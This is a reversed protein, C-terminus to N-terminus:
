PAASPGYHLLMGNESGVWIDNASEGWISLLNHETVGTVPVWDGGTYHAMYGNTGVIWANSTSSAWVGNWTELYTLGFPESVTWDGWDTPAYGYIELAAGGVWFRGASAGGVIYGVESFNRSWAAGDWHYFGDDGVAWVNTTGSGWVARLTDSAGTDNSAGGYEWSTATKRRANGVGIYEGVVWLESGAGWICLITGTTPSEEYGWESGDYHLLIGDGGAWIDNASSGWLAYLPANAWGILSFGQGDWHSFGGNTDVAWVDNASSGWLATIDYNMAQGQIETWGITTGCQNPTGGGGCTAPTTCSGCSLTQGCGDDPTGCTAHLETCTTPQCTPRTAGGDAAVCTYDTESAPDAWAYGAECTPQGDNLCHVATTCPVGDTGCGVLAVAFVPTVLASLLMLSLYPTRIM